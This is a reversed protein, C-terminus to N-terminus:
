AEKQEELNLLLIGRGPAGICWLSIKADRNKKQLCGMEQLFLPCARRLEGRIM